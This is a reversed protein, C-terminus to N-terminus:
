ESRARHWRRALTAAEAVPDADEICLMVDRSVQAM